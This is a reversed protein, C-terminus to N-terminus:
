FDGAAVAETLAKMKPMFELIMEKQEQSISPDQLIVAPSTSYIAYEGPNTASEVVAIRCPMMVVLDDNLDALKKALLADCLHHITMHRYKEGTVAEVQKYLPAFFVHNIGIEVAKSRIAEDLDDGSMEKDTVPFKLVLSGFDSQGAQVGGCLTLTLLTAVLVQQIKGM